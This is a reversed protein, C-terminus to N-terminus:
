EIKLSRLVDLEVQLYKALDMEGKELASNIRITWDLAQELVAQVVTDHFAQRGSVDVDWCDDFGDPVEISVKIIKKSM